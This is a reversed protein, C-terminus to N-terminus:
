GRKREDPQQRHNDYDGDYGKCGGSQAVPLDYSLRGTSLRAALHLSSVGGM